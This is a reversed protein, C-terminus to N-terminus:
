PATQLNENILKKYALSVTKAVEKNDPNVSLINEFMRIAKDYLGSNFYISGLMEKLELDDPKLELAKLFFREAAEVLGRDISVLGLDRYIIPNEPSLELASILAEVGEDLKDMAFYTHGLHYYAESLHPHQNIVQKYHDEANPYDRIQFYFNGSELLTEKTSETGIPKQVLFQERIEECRQQWRLVREQCKKLLSSINSGTTAKLKQAQNLSIVASKFRNQEFYIKGLYYHADGCEPNFDLVKQLAAEADSYNECTILSQAYTLYDNWTKGSREFQNQAKQELTLRSL